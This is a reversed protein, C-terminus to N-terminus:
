PEQPFVDHTDVTPEPDDESLPPPPCTQRTLCTEGGGGSVRRNQCVQGHPGRDWLPNVKSRAPNPGRSGEKRDPVYCRLFHHDALIDLPRDLDESQGFSGCLLRYLDRRTFDDLKPNRALCDLVHEAEATRPDAHLAALAKRAHGKFYNVLLAARRVSEGDVDQTDAEKNIFRMFHIIFALRAAHVSFKEWPGRLHTPFDPGNVEAALADMLEQWRVRADDTLRFVSRGRGTSARSRFLM